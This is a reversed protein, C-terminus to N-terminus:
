EHLETCCITRQAHMYQYTQIFLVERVSASGEAHLSYSNQTSIGLLLITFSGEVGTQLPKVRAVVAAWDVKSRVQWVVSEVQGLARERPPGEERTSVKLEVLWHGSGRLAWHQCHM